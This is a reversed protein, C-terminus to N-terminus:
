WNPKCIKDPSCVELTDAIAQNNYCSMHCTNEHSSTHYSNCQSSNHHKASNFYFIISSSKTLKVVAAVGCTTGDFAQRKTVNLSMNTHTTQHYIYSLETYSKVSYKNQFPKLVNTMYNASRLLRMRKTYRTQLCLGIMCM